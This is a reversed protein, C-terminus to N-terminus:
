ESGNQYQGAKVMVQITRKVQSQVNKNITKTKNKEEKSKTEDYM